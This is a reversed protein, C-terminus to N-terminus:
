RRTISSDDGKDGSEAEEIFSMDTPNLLDEVYEKWQGVIKETSTLRVGGASYM